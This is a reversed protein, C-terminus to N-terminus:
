RLGSSCIVFVDYATNATLANIAKIQFGSATISDVYFFPANVLVAPQMPYSQGNPATWTWSTGFTVTFVVNTAGVGGAGVSVRFRMATDTNPNTFPHGAISASSLPVVATVNAAFGSPTPPRSPDIHPDVTPSPASGFLSGWAAKYQDLTLSEDTLTQSLGQAALFIQMKQAATPQRAGAMGQQWARNEEFTLVQAAVALEGFSEPNGNANYTSVAPPWSLNGINAGSTVDPRVQTSPNPIPGSPTRVANSTSLGSIVDRVASTTLRYWDGNSQFENFRDTLNRQDIRLNRLKQNRDDENQSFWWLASAGMGSAAALLNDSDRSM